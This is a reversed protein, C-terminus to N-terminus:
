QKPITGFVFHVAPNNPDQLGAPLCKVDPPACYSGDSLIAFLIAQWKVADAPLKGPDANFKIQVTKVYPGKTNFILEGRGIPRGYQDSVGVQLIWKNLEPPLNKLEIPVNFTFDEAFVAWSSILLTFVTLCM